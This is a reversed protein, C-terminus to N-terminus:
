VMASPQPVGGPQPSPTPPQGPTAGPQGPMMPAMPPPTAIMDADDLILSQLNNSQTALHQIAMLFQVVQAKSEQKQRAFRNTTLFRNFYNLYEADYADREEPMKGALLLQIDVEAEDHIQSGEIARLYGVPDMKSKMYRETRIEPDPLGIDEMLTRYDIAQGTKWLDMATARIKEKDLPLTSDVQVSIKVNADINEGNILIFEYKGDGGRVQFWYDETYYTRMMQLLVKYYDEMGSAVCRVLDDQLMGAQQKVMIDRTATDQSSPSAGKFQSPTGMMQDIENRFDVVSNYVEAPLSNPTEAKLAKNVDDTDVLAVTRAGKNIFKQADEESFAKKSAIWRGNMFDINRNLQMNRHNLMEQLPKTQEFLCTDDIFSHGTNIYNFWIFPKPPREMINQRKDKKDDGTYVWNPNPMKDLILHHEPIFWAVGERSKHENDLYTFWAEFYTVFRSVQSYRGQKISYAIKIDAEKEPFRAILEDVSCRLRHYIINPNGLFQANRDVIIDEPNCVETVIDGYEGKEPDFRLKIPGRKRTLLNMVAARTKIDVKNDAAHQYLAKQIDQAGKLYIDDGRSPTIEPVALQGTAYSLIARLSSFMRNDVFNEGARMLQRDDLQDGLLFNTNEKDTKQLQWPKRQWYSQNEDLSQILMKDLRDDSMSLAFAEYEEEPLYTDSFLTNYVNQTQSYPNSSM